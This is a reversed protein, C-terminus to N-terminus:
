SQLAVTLSTRTNFFVEFPTRFGLSKRPRHNLKDMAKEIEHKTVTTLDRHKPFYQRILGNTNENLGREWSAYPHAFYIRADLDSAMGEHDTFERGNDYTITHVWDIYPTLGDVVADRVAEATKNLVARIVTYLSKREVLTVLAGRHGKGIVTDGEWDGFRQRSDVIAPREDISIQNPICGRRSYAGYRKRRVKQCRLFRYLEGGSRQDAYVYQYIWEHSISVGHEMEVRGVVQEPSWEERILTEVLQWVKDGIRPQAKDHRRRLALHHAQRPRYGKLGRNRRLERSITSKDRDLLEAIEAQSYEAKKLIYIQYREEQTLQTYGRM